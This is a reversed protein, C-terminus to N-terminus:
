ESCGQLTYSPLVEWLERPFHLVGFTAETGIRQLRWYSECNSMGLVVCAFNEGKRRLLMGHRPTIFQAAHVEQPTALRVHCANIENNGWGEGPPDVTLVWPKNSECAPSMCVSQVMSARQMFQGGSKDIVWDGVTFPPAPTPEPLQHGDRDCLIFNRNAYFWEVDGIGYDGRVIIHQHEGFSTQASIAMFVWGDKDPHTFYQGKVIESRKM